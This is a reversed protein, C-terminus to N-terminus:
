RWTSKGLVECQNSVCAKLQNTKNQILEALLASAAESSGQNLAAEIKRLAELDYAANSSLTDEIIVTAAFDAHRNVETALLYWAFMGAIVLAVGILIHTLYKM